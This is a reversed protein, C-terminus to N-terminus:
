LPVTFMCLMAYLIECFDACTLISDSYQGKVLTVFSDLMSWFLGKGSLFNM